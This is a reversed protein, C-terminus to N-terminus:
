PGNRGLGNQSEIMHNSSSNSGMPLAGEVCKQWLLIGNEATSNGQDFCLVTLSSCKDRTLTAEPCSISKSFALKTTRSGMLWYCMKPLQQQNIWSGDRVFHLSHEHFTKIQCLKGPLILFSLLHKTEWSVQGLLYYCSRDFTFFM